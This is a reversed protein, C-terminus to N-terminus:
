FLRYSATVAASLSLQENSYTSASTSVIAQNIKSYVYSTDLNLGFTINQFLEYQYGVRLTGLPAFISTNVNGSGSDYRIVQLAGGFGLGAYAGRWVFYRAFVQASYNQIRISVSATEGTTFSGSSTARYSQLYGLSAGVQLPASGYWAEVGFAPAFKTSSTSSYGYGSSLLTDNAKSYENSLTIYNAGAYATVEFHHGLNLYGDANAAAHAALFLSMACFRKM